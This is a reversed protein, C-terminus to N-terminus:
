LLIPEEIELKLQTTSVARGIVQVVQGDVNPPTTTLQGLVTSLFYSALPLLTPVGVVNTWDSMEFVDGVQVDGSFTPDTDAAALGVGNKANDIAGARVIGTGSPHVAVIQGQKIQVVDKNQSSYTAVRVTALEGVVSVEVGSYNVRNIWGRSVGGALVEVRSPNTVPM